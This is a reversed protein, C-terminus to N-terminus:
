RAAYAANSRCRRNCNSVDARADRGHASACVLVSSVVIVVAAVRVGEREAAGVAVDELGKRRDQGDTVHDLWRRRKRRRRRRPDPRGLVARRDIQEDSKGDDILQALRNDRARVSAAVMEPGSILQFTQGLTTDNSRECECVLLRPPKGFTVLFQDAQTPKQRARAPRASAPSKRRGADGQPLRRIRRCAPWRTSRRGATARGDPPAPHRALLEGRRRRQHREARVVLAYARSNMILRIMYRVDYGHAVFDKPWRTSCNRTARRSQDPPFRRGSRGARPGDPPVLDPQGAGQRLVPEDAVHGLRGARRAPGADDPVHAAHRAAAAQRRPRRRPDKVDGAHTEYVIQEGVFEHRDNTDTRRNELIKYDVRAFVDAWGYYDDQTWRDFPHNHCQACQLRVGLFVQATAEGRTVPDRNARYYNAPPNAYTSGRGALLERAFQDLPKNDAVGERIWHHFNQVGKRDLTREENRLLDSWKLAWFDAYEPRELLRDILTPRKDAATDAVFAKAEDATPLLGLLDLYARRVFEGDTCAASPNM